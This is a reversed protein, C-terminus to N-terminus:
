GHIKETCQKLQQLLSDGGYLLKFLYFSQEERVSFALTRWLTLSRRDQQEATRLM